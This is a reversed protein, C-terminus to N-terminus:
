EVDIILFRCRRLRFGRVHSGYLDRHARGINHSGCPRGRHLIAVEEAEVGSRENKAAQDHIADLKKDQESMRYLIIQIDQEPM